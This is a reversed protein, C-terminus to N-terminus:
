ITNREQKDVYKAITALLIVLALVLQSLMLILNIDLTASAMFCSVIGMTRLVIVILCLTISTNKGLNKALALTLIAGFCIACSIISIYKTAENSSLATVVLANVANVLMAIKYYTAFDKKYGNILYFFAYILALLNSISEVIYLADLESSFTLYVIGIACCISLVSIIIAFVNLSKKM